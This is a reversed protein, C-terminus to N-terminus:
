VRNQDLVSLKRRAQGKTFYYILVPAICKSILKKIKIKGFFSSNGGM